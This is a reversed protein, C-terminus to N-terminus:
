NISAANLFYDGILRSRWIGRRIPEFKFPEYPDKGDERRRKATEDSIQKCHSLLQAAFESSRCLVNYCVHKAYIDKEIVSFYTRKGDNKAGKSQSTDKLLCFM